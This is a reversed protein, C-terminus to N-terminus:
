ESVVMMDTSPELCWRVAAAPMDLDGRAKLGAVVLDGLSAAAKGSVIDCEPLPVVQLAGSLAHPLVDSLEAAMCLLWQQQVVVSNSLTTKRTLQSWPRCCEGGQRGVKVVGDAGGLCEFSADEPLAHV